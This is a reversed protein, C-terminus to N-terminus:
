RLTAFYLWLASIEVENMRGLAAVPMPTRLAHGDIASRGTRMTSVFGQETWRADAGLRLSAAPAWDPPAGPIPGGRFESGHCGSCAGAALYRGFEVSRGEAPKDAFTASHDIREAAFLPLRGSAYLLKAGPGLVLPASAREVPPVSRLYAVAAALDQRGLNHYEHSPMIALPRGDRGIGHRIAAAIDDDTWDRLAAPTINPARVSGIFANEVIVAGSLDAGHCDTCGNRVLVIRRGLEPPANAVADALQLQPKPYRRALAEGTRWHAWLFAALAAVALVGFLGAAIRLLKGM